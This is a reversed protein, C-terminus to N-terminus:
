RARVPGTTLVTFRLSFLEQKSGQAPKTGQLPVGAGADGGSEVQRGEVGGPQERRWRRGQGQGAEHGAGVQKWGVHREAPAQRRAQYACASGICAEPQDRLPPQTTPVPGAALAPLPPAIAPAGVHSGPAPRRPRPWHWTM